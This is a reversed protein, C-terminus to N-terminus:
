VGYSSTTCAIGICAISTFFARLLSRSPCGTTQRREGVVGVCWLLNGCAGLVTALASCFWTSQLGDAHKPSPAPSVRRLLVVSQVSCLGLSLVLLVFLPVRLVQIELAPAVLLACSPSRLLGLKPRVVVARQMFLRWGGVWLSGTSGPHPLGHRLRGAPHRLTERRDAGRWSARPSLTGSVGWPVAGSSRICVALVSAVGVAGWVRNALQVSLRRGGCKMRCLVRSAPQASCDDPM